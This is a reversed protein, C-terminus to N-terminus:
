TAIAFTSFTRTRGVVLGVGADVSPLFEGSEVRLVRLQMLESVPAGDVECGARDQYSLTLTLDALFPEARDTEVIVRVQRTSVQRLTFQVEEGDPIAAQPVALSHNGLLILQDTGGTVTTEVTDDGAQDDCILFRPGDLDSPNDCGALLLAVALLPKLLPVVRTRM